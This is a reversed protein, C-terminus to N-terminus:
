FKVRLTVGYTRLDGPQGAVLGTDGPTTALLEYYERDFANRVWGYVDWGADARFGVRLNHVAHAAIDTYASRSANSSFKSRYNGDVGLYVEGGGAFGSLPFDYEDDAAERQLM